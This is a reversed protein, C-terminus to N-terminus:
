RLVLIAVFPIAYFGILIYAVPIWRNRVALESFGEAMRLPILRIPRFPWILVIGSINFLLHAFAVTVASIEGVSLAALMATITTGVNAGLTYPFIQRLTLIGAGALPVALSTTISSSQVLVTVLLGFVLARGANRFLTQDFFSEIKTLVLGKLTVVLFRLSAFMILLSVVLLVWPHNECIKTAGSVVPSTIIKLPSAFTLGGAEQFSNALFTSAKGLFNTAIQLPFLAVVALLNFFDHITSAAFARKFEKGHSIHGLSVLTNTVSTGINAGMVIPIATAIDMTGAGVLAVVLSTTTSSSQVLTTILIGQFLGVLPNTAIDILNGVFGGSFLKFSSGLMGISVLFAYLWFILTAVRTLTRSRQTEQLASGPHDLNPM